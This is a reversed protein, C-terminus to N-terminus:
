IIGAGTNKIDSYKALETDLSEQTLGNYKDVLPQMRMETTTTVQTDANEATVPLLASLIIASVSIAYLLKKIM